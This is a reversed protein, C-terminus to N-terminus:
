PNKDKKRFWIIQKKIIPKGKMHCEYTEILVDCLFYFNVIEYIKFYVVSHNFKQAEFGSLTPDFQWFSINYPKAFFFSLLASLLFFVCLAISLSM